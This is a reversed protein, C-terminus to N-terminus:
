PQREQAPVSAGGTQAVQRQARVHELRYEAELSARDRGITAVALPVGGAM